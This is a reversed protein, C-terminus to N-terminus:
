HRDGRGESDRSREESEQKQARDIEEEMRKGLWEGDAILKQWDIDKGSIMALDAEIASRMERRPDWFQGFSFRYANTVYELWDHIGKMGAEIERLGRQRDGSRALTLGLYLRAIDETENASIARELSQRAQPLKGLTYEARGVYSWIGQRLATGYVYNPDKEAVKQFYALAAENNGILLAQRGSQFEGAVQLAACAFLFIATAFFLSGIFAKMVAEREQNSLYNNAPTLAIRQKATPPRSM